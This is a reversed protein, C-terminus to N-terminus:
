RVCWPDVPVIVITLRVEEGNIRRSKVGRGLMMGQLIGQVDGRGRGTVLPECLGTRSPTRLRSRLMDATSNVCEYTRGM